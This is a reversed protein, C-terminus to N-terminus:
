VVPILSLATGTWPKDTSDYFQKFVFSTFFAIMSAGSLLWYPTIIQIVELPQGFYPLAFLILAMLAFGLFGAGVGLVVGHKIVESIKKNDNAGYATGIFFGVPGVLGFLAGYLIISISMTLSAAALPVEGLPGLFFSNILGYLTFSASGAILPIALNILPRVEARLPSLFTKTTTKSETVESTTIM